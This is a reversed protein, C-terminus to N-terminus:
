YELRLKRSIDAMDCYNQVELKYEFDKKHKDISTQEQGRVNIEVAINKLKTQKDEKKVSGTTSLEVGYSLGVIEAEDLLIRAIRALSLCQDYDIMQM